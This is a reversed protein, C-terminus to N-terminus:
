CFPPLKESWFKRKNIIDYLGTTCLDVVPGIALSMSIIQSTVNALFHAPILKSALVGEVSHMLKSIKEKPVFYKGNLLDLLFGFWQVIKRLGRHFIIKSM